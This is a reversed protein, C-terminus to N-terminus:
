KPCYCAITRLSQASLTCLDFDQLAVSARSNNCNSQCQEYSKTCGGFRLSTLDIVQPSTHRQEEHGCSFSSLLFLLCIFKHLM